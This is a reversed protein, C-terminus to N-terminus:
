GGLGVLHLPYDILGSLPLVPYGREQIFEPTMTNVQSSSDALASAKFGELVVDVLTEPGVWRMTPGTEVTLAVEPCSAVRTTLELSPGKPCADQKKQGAGQSNLYDKHWLHFAECHPCERAFNGPDGCIFCKCEQKQFHNMAQTMRLSLGEIHDLKPLTNEVPDPNPPLLDPEVTVACGM